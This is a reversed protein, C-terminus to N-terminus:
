KSCVEQCVRHFYSADERILYNPILNMEGSVDHEVINGSLDSVEHYQYHSQLTPANPNKPHFTIQLGTKYHKKDNIASHLTYRNAAGKQLVQGNKIIKIIGKEQPSHYTHSIFKAKGEVMEIIGTIENQLTKFYSEFPDRM